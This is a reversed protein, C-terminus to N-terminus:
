ILKQLNQIIISGNKKYGTVLCILGDKCLAHMKEYIDPFVVAHDISYSSDSITLFCMPAGPNKGKKTKTHKVSDIVACVSFSEGNLCKMLDLCNHSANSDDADDAPSCSLSIGLFYKEATAKALNTDFQEELLQQYKEKIIQLRKGTICSKSLTEDYDNEKLKNIIDIKTMNSFDFSEGLIKKSWNIIDDKKLSSLSKGPSNETQQIMEFLVEKISKNDTLKNLFWTREKETLGKVEENKGEKNKITTGFITELEKTMQFRQMNYCDCAGSKILAIGISRHLVPLSKLFENWTSLSQSQEIIKTIASQGVGRINSLGFRIGNDMMKFYVNCMRIDPPLVDIGFLRADQVLEYVEEKPDGKYNSFTLYSTFFEHPFHTKIYSSQYSLMAYSISHSKNFSYRQSKEIWGFIQEAIEKTVLGKKSCGEMFKIKLKSMLEPIKKGMAKRLEDANELSFGAIETAIKIAEEQYILCGYTDKLIPELKPHLYNLQKRGFKVDIYEESQGAELSGPRILAILAGLEQINSPKVKKAWESGLRTELQFIGKTFGSSILNWVAPCTLSVNNIDFKGKEIECDCQSFRIINEKM